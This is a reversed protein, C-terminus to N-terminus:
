LVVFVCCSVIYMCVHLQIYTCLKATNDCACLGRHACVDTITKAYAPFGSNHLDAHKYTCTYSYNAMCPQNVIHHYCKCQMATHHMFMYYMIFRTRRNCLDRECFEPTAHVSDHCCTFHHEINRCIYTQGKCNCGQVSQQQSGM